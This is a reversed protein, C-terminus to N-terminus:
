PLVEDPREYIMMIARGLSQPPNPDFVDIDFTQQMVEEAVNAQQLDSHVPTNGLFYGCFVAAILLTATMLPQLIPLVTKLEGQRRERQLSKLRTNVRTWLFPPASERRCHQPGKYVHQLREYERRCSACKAIHAEMQSCKNDDLDGDLYILLYKRVKNHNM